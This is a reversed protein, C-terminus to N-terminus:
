EPSAEPVNVIVGALTSSTFTVASALVYVPFFILGVDKLAVNFPFSTLSWNLNDAYPSLVFAPFVAPLKVIARRLPFLFKLPDVTSPLGDSVNVYSPVAWVNADVLNFM